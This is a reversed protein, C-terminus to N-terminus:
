AGLQGAALLNLTDAQNQNLNGGAQVPDVYAAPAIGQNQNPAPTTKRAGPDATNTEAGAAVPSGNLLQDVTQGTMAFPFPVTGRDTSSNYSQPIPKGSIAYEIARNAIQFKIDTVRFPYYKAIVASQGYGGNNAGKAPAVLKGQSDYGYFEIVLCHQAQLYNPTETTTPSAAAATGINTTDTQSQQSTKYASTVAKFLNQLLTIGNPETVKFRIDTATNIWNSGGMPIKSDIELDDMYYDLPFAPNRGTIPAGGSQMLLKWGATNPQQSDVMANYQAPTLLFWSIAYTYSAYQDLQNPQTTISQNLGASSTNVALQTTSLSPLPNNDPNVSTAANGTNGAGTGSDSNAQAPKDQATLDQNVQDQTYVAPAPEATGTGQSQGITLTEPATGGPNGDGADIYQDDAM